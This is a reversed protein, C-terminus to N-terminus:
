LLIEIMEDKDFDRIAATGVTKDWFMPSLGTGPRKVALNDAGLIEGARIPRAAVISKRAVAVNPTESPSRRKEPQGIALEVNRIASVMATLEATDLSAKHDPGEMSKDLTFHKEIVEAGMAVAAIPVEVGQTHDSFGVAACRLRRLAEMARLNVDAFPTPYQTNCHLLAIDSKPTGAGVLIGVAEGVEELTSMGTSMIVRGKQRGIERLYPLNTIEGSPIKWYDQGIAALLRISELDFPSSMFGVGCRLCEGALLAFAEPTLELSHLMALQSEDRGTNAKQYEAMPASAAVLDEARFTQFKVYDVGARAAARIMELATDVSGNHNVGAEAIILTKKM